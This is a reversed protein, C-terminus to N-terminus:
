PKESLQRAEWERDIDGAYYRDPQELALLQVRVLNNEPDLRAARRLHEVCERLRGRELSLRSLQLWGSAEVRDRNVEHLASTTDTFDPAATAEEAWRVVADRTPRDRIDIRTPPRVLHGSEDAFLGVPVSTLGFLSSLQDTEDILAVFTSNAAALWPLAVEKGQLDIAITVIRLRQGIEEHVEQWV